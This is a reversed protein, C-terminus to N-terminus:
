RRTGVDVSTSGGVRVCSSSGEVRVFGPGYEPCSKQASTGTKKTPLETKMDRDGAHWDRTQAWAASGGVCLGILMGCLLRAIVAPFEM